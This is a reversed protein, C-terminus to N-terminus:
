LPPSLTHGPSGMLYTALPLGTLPDLDSSSVIGGVKGPGGLTVQALGSVVSAGASSAKFAVAATLAVAGTVSSFTVNGVTSVGNIGTVTDISLLNTGATATWVGVGVSYSATGVGVTTVHNGILISEIRDGFLMLYQDTPGGIHGTVPNAIFQETRIPLNTPLFDKPGSFTETTKGFVTIDLTKSNIRVKDGSSIDVNSTASLTLQNSNGFDFQAAALRLRRGSKIFIDGRGEIIVSPQDGEGGGVRPNQSGLRGANSKGGGFIRVAGTESYLDIGHNDTERGRSTRVSFGQTSEFSTHGKSSIRLGSTLVGEVSNEKAPGGISFKVRGDKQVSWFTPPGANPLPSTLKFLTAAHEGLPSGVAIEFAPAAKGGEDFVVPKLPLGYSTRGEPTYPDNGVVSGLVQEIYPANAGVQDPQSSASGPLREADFGDTQETVPLVGDSTHTLEIRHETLARGQDGLTANLPRNDSGSDISVRYISKGGYIADGFTQEEDVVFGRDNIFLGRRLFQYPDINPNPFVLNSDPLGSAVDSRHFVAGPTLQGLETGPEPPLASEPIPRNEGDVQKTDEWYKGTNFIQSPLFTADRQVMGVNIRAGACAHHQQLSRMVIAQDQDRLQIETCRRNTLLVSEDLVLDSGQSSSLLINGPGMHRLKHRVRQYSGEVASANKPNFDYEDPAYPQTPLWDHGMWAAPGMWSLIIPSMTGSGSEQNIYGVICYDGMEPMAGLFHRQGIGPFTLPVNTRPYKQQQGTLVRLTVTHAEYDLDEVRALGLGLKTLGHSPNMRHSQFAGRIASARGAKTHDAGM